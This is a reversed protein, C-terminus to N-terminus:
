NNIGYHERLGDVYMWEMARAPSLLKCYHMGAAAKITYDMPTRMMVSRVEIVDEGSSSKTKTYSLPDWIWIPGVNYPGKDEGMVMPVGYKMFRARTTVNSNQLAWTYAEQNIDKCISTGDTKNFDVNKYGGSVMVVQRSKLKVRIESASTPVFGADILKDFEEYVNQSVTTMNVVCYSSPTSCNVTNLVHPLHVPNIQYVPHFVDTDNVKGAPLGGMVQQAHQSWPCGLTCAGKLGQYCPSIFHYSGELEYATILPKMLVGTDAVVRGIYELASSDGMKLSIFASVLLGVEKHAQDFSIEPKLDRLKVLEPPEGSAFQLHSLGRVVAVPFNKLAMERDAAHLVRHYYEEMIRTVHCLGDLEGGITMTPVTFSTNRYKRQLFAGMLVQGMAGSPTSNLYDQLIIGGLSHGTFFLKATKNMGADQMAKVVRGIGSGIVLPEPTNLAFDPIGVWVPFHATAQIAQALPTYRAAPIQAGQIMVLAIEVPGPKTPKIIVDDAMVTAGLLALVLLSTLNM